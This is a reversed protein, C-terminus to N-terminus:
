RVAARQGAKDAELTNAFTNGSIFADLDSRRYRVARGLRVFRKGDGIVRWKRLTVACLGLAKAAQVTDFLEDSM